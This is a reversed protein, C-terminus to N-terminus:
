IYLLSSCVPVCLLSRRSGAIWVCKDKMKQQSSVETQQPVAQITQTVIQPVQGYEIKNGYKFEGPVITQIVPARKEQKNSSKDAEKTPVVSKVSKSEVAKNDKEVEAPFAYAGM